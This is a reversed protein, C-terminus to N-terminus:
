PGCLIALALAFSFQDPQVAEGNFLAAMTYMVDALYAFQDAATKSGDGGKSVPWSGPTDDFSPGGGPLAALGAPGYGAVEDHFNATEFAIFRWQKALQQARMNLSNANVPAGAAVGTM